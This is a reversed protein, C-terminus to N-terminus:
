SLQDACHNGLDVFVCPFISLMSVRDAQFAAKLDHPKALTYGAIRTAKTQVTAHLAALKQASLLYLGWVMNLEADSDYGWIKKLFRETPILRRPNSM